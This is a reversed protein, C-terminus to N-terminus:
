PIRIDPHDEFEFYGNKPAKRDVACIIEYSIEIPNTITQTIIQEPENLKLSITKACFATQNKIGNNGINKIKM